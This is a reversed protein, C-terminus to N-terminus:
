VGQAKVLEVGLRTVEDLKDPPLTGLTAIYVGNPSFLVVIQSFRAGSQFQQLPYKAGWEALPQQIWPTLIQQAEAQNSTYAM